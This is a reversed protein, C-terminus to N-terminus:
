SEPVPQLKEVLQGEKLRLVALAIIAGHDFALGRSWLMKVEGAGPMYGNNEIQLLATLVQERNEQEATLTLKYLRIKETEWQERIRKREMVELVDSEEFGTETLNMEFWAADAADDGSVIHLQNSEALAMFASSMVWGREDRDPRSFVQLQQLMVNEIGTEEKLERYAAEEVTENKEVFGGPVAWCGKYPDAGRRILLVSIKKEPKRTSFVVIDAAVSPCDYKKKKYSTNGYIKIQCKEMANLANVHSEPTVGACCGADVSIVAEPFFAKLIMANSIVCIDTCLGCLEIELENTDSIEGATKRIVEPLDASGFTNKNVIVSGNTDLAEDIEIGPTGEICHAVPLNKGEQTELYDGTHTDKTFIIEIGQKKYDKIKKAVPYVIDLAEKTGLSGDIFDKQMDVVILIKM